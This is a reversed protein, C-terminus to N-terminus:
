SNDIQKNAVCPDYPNTKFGLDDVLFSSLNNYFLKAADVTGYLAKIAESYITPVKKRGEYVIYKEWEPNIKVLTLVLVGQLKIITGDSAETQLFAGPIDVHAVNRREKADVASGIFISEINATPSSTELKSRYLRQPRGDACGREKTEGSRKKKFFM